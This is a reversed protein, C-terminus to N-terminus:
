TISEYELEFDDSSKRASLLYAVFKLDNLTKIIISSEHSVPFYGTRGCFFGYGKSGYNELFKITNWACISYVFSYVPILNQTQGFIEEKSFNIPNDNYVCHVNNSKVTVLSDYNQDFFFKIAEAIEEGTQLPSTPNVWALYKPNYKNIFDAVVDDVKAESSGLLTPRKYFEIGNRQAIGKFIEDDSNLIIRDFAKSKIAAEITYEILPKGNILALNKKALRTSGIRAPIMGITM